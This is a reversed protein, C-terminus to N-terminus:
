EGEVTKNWKRIAKRYNIHVVQRRCVPCFIVQGEESVYMRPRFSPNTIGYHNCIAPESM